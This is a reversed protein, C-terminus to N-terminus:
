MRQLLLEALHMRMARVPIWKLFFFTEFMCVFLDRCQGCLVVMWSAMICGKLKDLKNMKASRSVSAGFFLILMFKKKKVPMSALTVDDHVRQSFQFCYCKSTLSVLMVSWTRTIGLALRQLLQTKNPIIQAWDGRKLLFLNQMWHWILQSTSASSLFM